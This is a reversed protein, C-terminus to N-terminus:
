RGGWNTPFGPMTQCGCLAYFLPPMRADVYEHLNQDTISPQPLVWEKPVRVGSLIDVTAIIATRWVYVPYTPAIATLHRDQWLKLFDLQDQGTIPPVPKGADIFAQAAAAATAGADLWVGDIPKGRKLYDDVISKTKAPDAGTFEVGLVNRHAQAFLYQAAAWRTELVDVGPLIRLALINGGTRTNAILFDAATAGYAYGGIPHIYTVQCTTNVGRDFVVVPVGTQCAKEVAPTLAVTTNPSVIIADCKGADLGALDSIQKDDKGGAQLVTFTTIEPHLKLEARMTSYGTLRWPNTFDANSFCVKWPPAKKFHTTDVWTPQLAQLWPQDAPGEPTVQRQALQRDFDAKVFFKSSILTPSSPASAGAGTPSSSGSQCAALTLLVAALAAAGRISVATRYM